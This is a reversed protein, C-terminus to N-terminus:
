LLHWRCGPLLKHNGNDFLIRMAFCFNLILAFNNLTEVIPHDNLRIPFLRQLVQAISLELRTIAKNFVIISISPKINEFNGSSVALALAPVAIDGFGCGNAIFIDFLDIEQKVNPNIWGSLRQDQIFILEFRVRREAVLLALARSLSQM